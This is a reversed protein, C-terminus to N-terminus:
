FVAVRPAVDGDKIRDKIIMWAEVEGIKTGFPSRLVNLTVFKVDGTEGDVSFALDTRLRKEKDKINQCQTCLPRPLRATAMWAIAKALDDPVRKEGSRIDAQYDGSLYSLEVYDPERAVTFPQVTFASEAADYEAPTVTVHGSDVLKGEVCVEQTTEGTDDQLQGSELWYFLNGQSPDVTEYYIDVESVLNAVDSPDLDQFGDSGPFAALVDPDFFLWVPIRFEINGGSIEKTTAPRIEWLPNGNMGPLYVKHAYPDTYSTAVTIFLTENFGDDDEDKLQMTSGLFSASAVFEADRVGAGIFKGYKLKVSKYYGRLDLGQATTWKKRYHRPYTRRENEIWHYGPYYGLESAIDLEALQIERALEDRSVKDEDQWAYQRWRDTCGTSPFYSSSNGSLFQIPNIGIIDAYEALSLATRVPPKYLAFTGTGPSGGGPIETGVGVNPDSDDVM